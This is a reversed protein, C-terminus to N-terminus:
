AMAERETLQELADPDNVLAGTIAAVMDTVQLEDHKFRATRQGFRMVEVRDAVEMVDPLNHSILVVGVGRDRVQKILELVKRTQVVGLAATPEDLFIVRDAWLTARAIAVIQRQGGSLSSVPATVDQVTTVGLDQFVTRTRRRMEQTQNFFKFRRLERGLFVNAAPDLDAALALDQYVTEVGHDHADHPSKFEVHQGDLLLEGGNPQYVGSLVKVITSKGAGNDGILATVEGPYVAFSMGRLAQVSGFSKIIGRAELVPQTM